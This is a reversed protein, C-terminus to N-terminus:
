CFDTKLVLLLLGQGQHLEVEDALPSPLLAVSGPQPVLAALTVEEPVQQPVLAGLILVVKEEAAEAQEEELSGLAKAEGLPAHVVHM